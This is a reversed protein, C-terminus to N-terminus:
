DRRRRDRRRACRPRSRITSRGARPAAPPDCLKFSQPPFSAAPHSFLFHRRDADRADQQDQENDGKHHAATQALRLLDHQRRLRACRLRATGNHVVLGNVAHLDPGVRHLAGNLHECARANVRAGDRDLAVPAAAAAHADDRRCGRVAPQPEVDRLRVPLGAM